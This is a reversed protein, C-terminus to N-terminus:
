GASRRPKEAAAVERELKARMDDTFPRCDCHKAHAEHWTLRQAPTPREPMPHKSHWSANIAM